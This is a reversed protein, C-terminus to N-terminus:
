ACVLHEQNMHNISREPVYLFITDTESGSLQFSNNILLNRPPFQQLLCFFFYFLIIIGFYISIVSCFLASRLADNLFFHGVSIVV